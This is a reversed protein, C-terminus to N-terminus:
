SSSKCEHAAHGKELCLYCTDHDLECGGGSRHRKCGRKADFNHFRCIWPSNDDVRRKPWKLPSRLKMDERPREATRPQVAWWEAAARVRSGDRPQSSAAAALTESKVVILKPRHEAKLLGDIVSVVEPLARDGGVDVVALTPRMREALAQLAGPDVLADLKLIEIECHNEPALLERAACVCEFATDVGVVLAPPGSRCIVRTCCGTSCGVELVRDGPRTLGRCLRRLDGTEATVVLGSSGSDSAAADSRLGCPVLRSALVGLPAEADDLRVTLPSGEEAPLSVLEGSPVAHEVSRKPLVSVREGARWRHTRPEWLHVAM